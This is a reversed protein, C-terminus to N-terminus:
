SWFQFQDYGYYAGNIPTGAVDVLGDVVASFVARIPPLMLLALLILVGFPRLSAGVRRTREPLYPEAMGYGDLGPIPCLNLLATAVQLYALFTLAAWFAARPEDLGYIAEPGAVSVVGLLLAAAAVNVAPGAASVLADTLRGRLRHREVMVAGGPLPIGGAILFVLPLLLTLVPHGYRRPDLRLYGKGAVTDDGGRHAVLAHSFEHLCLTVLWGALVFVFVAPAVPGAGTWLAIGGAATVALLALFIWSVGRGARIGSAGRDIRRPRRWQRRRERRVLKAMDRDIDRARRQWDKDAALRDLPDDPDMAPWRVGFLAM